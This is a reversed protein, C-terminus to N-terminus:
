LMYNTDHMYVDVHCETLAHLTCPLVPPLVLSFSYTSTLANFPSFGQLFFAALHQLIVSVSM